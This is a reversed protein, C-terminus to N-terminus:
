GGVQPQSNSFPNCGFKHGKPRLCNRHIADWCKISKHCKPLLKNELSELIAIGEASLKDVRKRGEQLADNAGKPTVFKLTDNDIYPGPSAFHNLLYMLFSQEEQTIIKLDIAPSTM